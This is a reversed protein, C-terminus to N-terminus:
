PIPIDAPWVSHEAADYQEKASHVKGHMDTYDEYPHAVYLPGLPTEPWYYTFPVSRYLIVDKGSRTNHARLSFSRIRGQPFDDPRGTVSEDVIEDKGDAAITFIKNESLPVRAEYSNDELVYSGIMTGWMMLDYWQMGSSGTEIDCYIEWDDLTPSDKPVAIRTSIGSVETFASHLLGYEPLAPYNKTMRELWVYKGDKIGKYRSNLTIVKDYAIGPRIETFKPLLYRKWLDDLEIELKLTDWTKTFWGGLSATFPTITIGHCLAIFSEHSSSTPSWNGDSQAVLSIGYELKLGAGFLGYFQISPEAILSIGASVKATLSTGIEPSPSADDPESEFHRFMFGQEPQYSFGFRGMDYRYSITTNLTVNANAGISASVDMTPTLIVGPAVPIGPACYLTFLHVSRSFSISQSISFDAKLDLTPHFTFHVFNVEGGTVKVAAKMGVNLTAGFNASCHDGSYSISLGPLSIDKSASAVAKTLANAMDDANIFVSGDRAVTFPVSNGEADRIESLYNSIDLDEGANEVENGEADFMAEGMILEEFPAGFNPETTAYVESFGGGIPRVNEVRFIGGDPVQESGYNFIFWRLQSPNLDDSVLLSAAPRHIQYGDQKIPEGDIDRVVDTTLRMVRVQHAMEETVIIAEPKLSSKAEPVYEKGAVEGITYLVGPSLTKGGSAGVTKATRGGESDIFTIEFGKDYNRAPVVIFVPHLVGAPIFIGNGSFDVTIVKETGTITGVPDAGGSISLSGAVAAGSLDRFEVSTITVDDEFRHGAKLLAMVPRFSIGADSSGAGALINAQPDPREMAGAVGASHQEAPFTIIIAGDSGKSADAQYPYYGTLAGSPVSAASKFDARKGDESLSAADITFVQNSAGSGFIGLRDGVAWSSVVRVGPNDVLTTKTVVDDSAIYARITGKNDYLGSEGECSVLMLIAIVGLLFSKM